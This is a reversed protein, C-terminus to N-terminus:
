ITYETCINSVFGRKLQSYQWLSVLSDSYEFLHCKLMQFSFQWNYLAKTKAATAAAVAATATVIVVLSVIVHNTISIAATLLICHWICIYTLVEPLSSVDPLYGMVISCSSVAMILILSVGRHINTILLNPTPLLLPLPYLQFHVEM